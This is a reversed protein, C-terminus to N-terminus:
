GLYFELHVRRSGGDYLTHPKYASLQPFSSYHKLMDDSRAPFKLSGSFLFSVPFLVMWTQRPSDKTAKFSLESGM